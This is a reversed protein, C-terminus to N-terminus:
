TKVGVPDVTGAILDTLAPAAGKYPIHTMFIKADHKLLETGHRLESLEM